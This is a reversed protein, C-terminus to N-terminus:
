EIGNAVDYPPKNSILNMHNPHLTTTKQPPQTHQCCYIHNLDEYITTKNTIFFWAVVQFINVCAWSFSNPSNIHSLIKIVNRNTTKLM